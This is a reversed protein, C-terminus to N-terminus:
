PMSPAADAPAPTNLARVLQLAIREAAMRAAREQADQESIMSAYVSNSLDYSAEGFTSGTFVPDTEGDRYVEYDVNLRIAFRRVIADAGVGLGQAGLRTETRLTLDGDAHRSGMQEILAEQLLFDVREEGTEVRIDSLGAGYGASGYMPTFGCAGLALAFSVAASGLIMRSVRM